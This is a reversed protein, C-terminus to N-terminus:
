GMLRWNDGNIPHPQINLIKEAQEPNYYCLGRSVFNKLIPKSLHKTVFNFIKVPVNEPEKDFLRKNRWVGRWMFQNNYINTLFGKM